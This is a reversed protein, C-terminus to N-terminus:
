SGDEQGRDPVEGNGIPVLDVHKPGAADVQERDPESTRPNSEGSELVKVRAKLARVESMLGEVVTLLRRVEDAYAYIRM